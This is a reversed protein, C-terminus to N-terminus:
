ELARAGLAREVPNRAKGQVPEPVEAGVRGDVIDQTTEPRQRTNADTGNEANSAAAGHVYRLRDSEEHRLWSVWPAIEEARSRNHTRALQRQDQDRRCTPRAALDGLEGGDVGALGLTGQVVLETSRAM